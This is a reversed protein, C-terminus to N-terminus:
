ISNVKKEKEKHLEILTTKIEEVRSKPFPYFYLCILLIALAIGPIVIFLLRLAFNVDILPNYVEWDSQVFVLGITVISLIM